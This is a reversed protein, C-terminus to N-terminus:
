SGPDLRGPGRLWATRKDAEQRKLVATTYIMYLSSLAVYVAVPAAAAAPFNLVAVATAGAGLGLVKLLAATFYSKAFDEVQHAARKVFKEADQRAPVLPNLDAM